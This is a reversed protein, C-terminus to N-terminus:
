RTCELILFFFSGLFLYLGNSFFFFWFSKEALIAYLTCSFSVVVFILWM